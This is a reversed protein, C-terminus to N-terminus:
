FHEIVKIKEEVTAEPALARIQEIARDRSERSNYMGSKSVLYGNSTLLEFYFEGHISINCDFICDDTCKNKILHIIALCDTKSQYGGGALLEHDNQDKLSFQFEGNRRNSVLFKATKM